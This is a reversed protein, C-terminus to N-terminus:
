AQKMLKIYHLTSVPESGVQKTALFFFFFVQKTALDALCRTPRVAADGPLRKM